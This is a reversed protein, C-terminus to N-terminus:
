LAEMDDDERLCHLAKFLRDRTFERLERGSGGAGILFFGDDREFYGAGVRIVAKVIMNRLLHLWFRRRWEAPLGRETEYGEIARRLFGADHFCALLSLDDMPDGGTADDFDIFAAARDESGLVNWLALDKHTLCAEPLELLREHETVAGSIERAEAGTLFGRTELFRLHEEMRLLFYDAYRGHCGELRGEAATLPGFGRPKLGQWKGVAAGVDFAVAAADLRGLKWWHNLDPHPVLETVQWDFPARERSVDVALVEPVPVGTTGAAKMVESEIHLHSEGEPGDDVRVFCPRGAAEGSWTWHNGQGAARRLTVKGFRERMAEMLQREMELPRERGAQTGHFAAPRDCKWYYIGERSM